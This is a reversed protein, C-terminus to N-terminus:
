TSSSKAAAAAEVMAVKTDVIDAVSVCVNNAGCKGIFAAAKTNDIAVAASENMQRRIDDTSSVLQQVMSFTNPLQKMTDCDMSSESKNDLLNAAHAMLNTNLLDSNLQSKFDISCDTENSDTSVRALYLKTLKDCADSNAKPRVASAPKNQSDSDFDIDSGDLDSGSGGCHSHVIVKSCLNPIIDM